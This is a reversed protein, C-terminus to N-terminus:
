EDNTLPQSVYQFAPETSKRRKKIEEVENYDIDIESANRSSKRPKVYFDKGSTKYDGSDDDTQFFKSAVVPKEKVASNSTSNTASYSEKKEEIHNRFTSYKEAAASDLSSRTSRKSNLSNMLDKMFM